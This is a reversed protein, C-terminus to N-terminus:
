MNDGTGAGSCFVVKGSRRSCWCAQNYQQCHKYKKMSRGRGRKEADFFDMMDADRKMFEIDAATEDDFEFEALAAVVLACALVFFLAKAMKIPRNALNSHFYSPSKCCNNTIVKM